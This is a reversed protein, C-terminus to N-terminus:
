SVVHPTMVILFLKECNIGKMIQGPRSKSFVKDNIGEKGRGAKGAGQRGAWKGNIRHDLQEPCSKMEQAHQASDHRQEKSLSVSGLTNKWERVREAASLKSNKLIWSTAEKPKGPPETTFFKGALAPSM